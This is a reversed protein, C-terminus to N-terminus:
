NENSKAGIEDFALSSSLERYANIQQQLVAIKQEATVIADSGAIFRRPLEKQSALTILASALKRPDGSQKGNQSKWFAHQQANRASYDEITTAAYSTLEDTLLETRFFGPNVILTRSAM